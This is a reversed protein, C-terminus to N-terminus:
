TERHNGVIGAFPYVMRDLSDLVLVVQTVAEQGPVIGMSASPLRSGHPTSDIVVPFASIASPVILFNVSLPKPNMLVPLRCLCRNESM